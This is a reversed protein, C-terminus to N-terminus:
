KKIYNRIGITSKNSMLLIIDIKNELKRMFELAKAYSNVICLNRNKNVITWKSLPSKIIISYHSNGLAIPLNNKHAGSIM